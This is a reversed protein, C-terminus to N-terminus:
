AHRAPENPPDLDVAATIFLFTLPAPGHVNSKVLLNPQNAGAQCSNAGIGSETHLRTNGTDATGMWATCAVYVAVPPVVDKGTATEM